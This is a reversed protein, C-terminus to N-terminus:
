LWLRLIEAILEELTQGEEDAHGQLEEFDALDLRLLVSFTREYKNPKSRKTRPHPLLIVNTPQNRKTM